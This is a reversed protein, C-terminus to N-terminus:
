HEIHQYVAFRYSSIAPPFRSNFANAYTINCCLLWLGLMITAPLGLEVAFQIYDNHAHDYFGSYPEPHYGPFTSYFSGGGTGTLTYDKIIPLSDRVVEDRTESALNTEELRQKAKEVGFISGVLILDLIFFSIILLRMNKPKHKYFFFAFLSGVALAIFFASNGMCSRTLILAIIM